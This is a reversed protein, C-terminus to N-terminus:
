GLTNMLKVRRWYRKEKEDLEKKEFKKLPIPWLEKVTSGWSTKEPRRFRADNDKIVKAIM